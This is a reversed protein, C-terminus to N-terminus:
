ARYSRLLRKTEEDVAFKESKFEAKQLAPRVSDYQPSAFLCGPDDILQLPFMWAEKTSVSPKKTRKDITTTIFKYSQWVNLLFIMADFCKVKLYQEYHNNLLFDFFGKDRDAEMMARISMSTHFHAVTKFLSWSNKVYPTSHPGEYGRKSVVHKAKLVGCEKGEGQCTFMTYLIDGALWGRHQRDKIDEALGDKGGFSSICDLHDTLSYSPFVDWISKVFDDGHQKASHTCVANFKKEIEGPNSEALDPYLSFFLIYDTFLFIDNLIMEPIPILRM